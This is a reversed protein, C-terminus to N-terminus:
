QYEIEDDFAILQPDAARPNKPDFTYHIEGYCSKPTGRMTTFDAYIQHTVDYVGNRDRATAGGNTWSVEVDGYENFIEQDVLACAKKYLQDYTSRGMLRLVDVDEITTTAIIVRKM